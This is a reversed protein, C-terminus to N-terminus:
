RGLRQGQAVEGPSDGYRRREYRKSQDLVQVLSSESSFARRDSSRSVPTVGYPMERSLGQDCTAQVCASSM